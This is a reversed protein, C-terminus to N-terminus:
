LMQAVAPPPGKHGPVGNGPADMTWTVTRSRVMGLRASGRLHPVRWFLESGRRVLHGRVHHLRPGRRHHDTQEGSGSAGYEALLPASVEIHELLPVKGSRSRAQNLRELIVPRRPLGPRTALMLLFSLLVPISIAITGLGHHAIAHKQSPSLLARDYYDQWTREYRFRFCRNLIDSRGSGHEFVNLTSWQPGSPATPVDGEPTDFDFYAEMSSALAASEKGGAAWFTTLLGRRGQASSRIFVGRRGSTQPVDANPRFGYRKLENLWPAESWEIWLREAPVHLLDACSLVKAGKSFALATCLATLDDNLTYRFPCCQVDHAFDAAGTLRVTRNDIDKVLLPTRSQAIQDALRMRM